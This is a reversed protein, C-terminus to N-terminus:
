THKIRVCVKQVAPQAVAGGVKGPRRPGWPFRPGLVLLRMLPSFTQYHSLVICRAPSTADANTCRVCPGDKMKKYRMARSRLVDAM